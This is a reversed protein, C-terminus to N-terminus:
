LRCYSRFRLEMLLVVKSYSSSFSTAAKFVTQCIILEPAARM